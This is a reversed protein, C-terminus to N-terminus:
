VSRIFIIAMSGSFLGKSCIYLGKFLGKNDTTFLSIFLCFLSICSHLVLYSFRCLSWRPAAQLMVDLAGIDIMVKAITLMPRGNPVGHEMDIVRMAVDISTLARQLALSCWCQWVRWSSRQLPRRGGAKTTSQRDWPCILWWWPRSCWSKQCWSRLRVEIGMVTVTLMSMSVRVLWDM